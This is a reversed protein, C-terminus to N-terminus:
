WFPNHYKTKILRKDSYSSFSEIDETVHWVVKKKKLTNLVRKFASASLLKWRKSSCM